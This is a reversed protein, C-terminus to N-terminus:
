RPARRPINGDKDRASLCDTLTAVNGSVDMGVVVRNISAFAMVGNGDRGLASRRCTLIAAGLIDAGEGADTGMSDIATLTVVGDGDRGRASRRCILVAAGAGGGADTGISDIAAFAVVGNRNRGRASHCCPAISTRVAVNAVVGDM